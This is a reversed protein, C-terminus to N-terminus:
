AGAKKQAKQSASRKASNAAGTKDSVNVPLKDVTDQLARIEKNTKNMRFVISAIYAALGLLVTLYSWIVYPADHIALEYIQEM